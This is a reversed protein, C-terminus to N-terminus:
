FLAGRGRRYSTLRLLQSQELGRVQNVYIRPFHRIGPHPAYTAAGAENM